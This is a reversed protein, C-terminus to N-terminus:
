PKGRYWYQYATRFGLSEYLRVAPTNDAVVQLYAHHAGNTQGWRLLSSVIQRGFGQRRAQAATVIDFVGLYGDAIVGLGVAVVEGNQEIVAYATPTILADLMRGLIDRRHAPVENMRAYADLWDPTRVAQLQVFRLPPIELEDLCAVQVNTPPAAEYGRAALQADLDSPQVADTLKFVVPLGQARYLSECYAIKEDLDRTSPYLANVSNARRTHGGAFRLVWGDCYVTHLAPLATMAVEEIHRIHTVTDIM